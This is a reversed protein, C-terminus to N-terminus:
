RQRSRQALEYFQQLRRDVRDHVEQASLGMLLPIGEDVTGITWIRFWGENAISAVVEPRLMLDRANVAPIIVGYGGDAQEGQARRARCLAWFGEIKTNVGGIPQMEGYQGVAGTVALSSRIPMQALTSLLAFLEAASASDGGTAGHQQEFRIRAAISIPRRQGYTNALYGEMTMMGRVHDSDAQEAEKEVDIISEQQGASVIASIRMPVAFSAEDPHAEFIGLGNIQGVAAGSTPTMEQGSLIAERVREAGGAQLTRRLQLAGDVHEGTTAASGRARALRGAELALDHLLLLNTSLRSRNLGDMRRAGEEVLRAVGGPDFPPQGHRKSVGDALVAYSAETERTWAVDWNCWVEYRFLRTFDETNSALANYASGSGILAARLTIPIAPWGQKLVLSRMKLADALTGWTSSDLVDPAQLVLVGGNARLLVDTLDAQGLSVVVVPAGQGGPAGPLDDAVPSVHAVPVDDSSFPLDSGSRKELSAQLQDLYPHVSQPAAAVVPAFQDAILQLQTAATPGSSAANGNSSDSGDDDGSGDWKDAITRLAVSLARTFDAGTGKPVALVIPKDLTAADPVYCYEPPAPRRAMAQRALSAVISTRGQGAGGGVYLHGDPAGDDLWSRVVGAAQPQLRVSVVLAIWDQLKTDPGLGSETAVDGFRPIEQGQFIRLQAAHDEEALRDWEARRLLEGPTALMRAGSAAVAVAAPRNENGTASRRGWM